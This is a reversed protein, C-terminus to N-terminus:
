QHLMSAFSHSNHIPPQEGWQDGWSNKVIWYDKGDESGYGVLLVAHDLSEPDCWYDYPDYIGGWYFQLLAANVAASLPGVQVLTEAIATEDASVAKWGTVTAAVGSSSHCYGNPM